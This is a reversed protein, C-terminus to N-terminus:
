IEVVSMLLWPSSSLSWSFKFVLMFLAVSTAMGVTGSCSGAVPIVGEPSDPPSSEGLDSSRLSTTTETPEEVRNSEVTVAVALWMTGDDTAFPGSERLSESSVRGGGGGTGREGGGSSWGSSELGGGIGM